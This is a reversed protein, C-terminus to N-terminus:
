LRSFALWSGGLVRQGTLMGARPRSDGPMGQGRGESTGWQWGSRGRYGGGTGDAGDGRQRGGSAEDVRAHPGPAGWKAAGGPKRTDSAEAPAARPGGWVRLRLGAGRWGQWGRTARRSEAFRDKNRGCVFDGDLGPGSLRVRYCGRLGVGECPVPWPEGPVLWLSRPHPWGQGPEWTAQALGPAQPVAGRTPDATPVM